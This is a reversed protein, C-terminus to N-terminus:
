ARFLHHGWHIEYHFRWEWCAATRANDSGRDWLMLGRSLDRDIDALDDWLLMARQVDEDRDGLNVFYEVLRKDIDGTARGIRKGVADWAEHSM